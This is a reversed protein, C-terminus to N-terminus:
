VPCLSSSLFGFYNPGFWLEQLAKCVSRDKGLLLGAVGKSSTMQIKPILFLPLFLTSNKGLEQHLHAALWHLDWLDGFAQSAPDQCLLYQLDQSRLSSAVGPEMCSVDATVGMSIRPFTLKAIMEEGDIDQINKWHCMVARM